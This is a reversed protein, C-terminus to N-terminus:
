KRTFWYILFALLILIVLSVVLGIWWSSTKGNSFNAAWWSCEQDFQKQNQVVLSGDKLLNGYLFEANSGDATLFATHIAPNCGPGGDHAANCHVQWFQSTPRFWQKGEISVQQGIWAPDVQRLPQILVEQFGNVWPKDRHLSICHEMSYNTVKCLSLM